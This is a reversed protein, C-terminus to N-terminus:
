SVHQYSSPMRATLHGADGLVRPQSALTATGSARGGRRGAATQAARLTESLCLSGVHCLAVLRHKTGRRTGNVWM